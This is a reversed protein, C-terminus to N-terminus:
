DSGKKDVIKDAHCSVNIYTYSGRTNAWPRAIGNVFSKGEVGISFEQGKSLGTTGVLKVRQVTGIRQKFQSDLFLLDVYYPYRKVDAVAKATESFPKRQALNIVKVQDGAYAKNMQFLAPTSKVKTM